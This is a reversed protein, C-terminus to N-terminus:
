PAPTVSHNYVEPQFIRMQEFDVAKGETGTGPYFNIGFYSRKRIMDYALNLKVDRPGVLMYVQNGTFMANRANDRLLSMDSRLGLTLYENIKVANTWILNQRGRYYTDFVFPTDGAAHAFFYRLSSHVRNGLYMNMTPGGRVLAAFDGTSYASAILNARFGFDVMRGPRGVRLLPATNRFEGQWQLRGAVGPKEEEPDVFFEEDYNPFFEDKYWGLSAYSDLRFKEWEKIERSDAIQVGYGPREYGLFGNQYDENISARLRTKGDFLKHDGLLVPQGVRSNYGFDLKTDPSRFHVIGGIGPGFGKDELRAGGGRRRGGGGMSVLPSFRVSSHGGVRFDWGPGLYFGGYDPDIGIDPGLYTMAGSPEDFSMESEPLGAIKWNKFYLAPSETLIQNYGNQDRYVEIEKVKFKFHKGWSEGLSAAQKPPGGAPDAETLETQDLQQQSISALSAINEEDGTSYTQTSKSKPTLTESTQGTFAAKLAGPELILRGNEYQVYKESLFSTQAKIRVQQVVAAYDNILASKRSLDIKAYSGHTKQGNKIIVVNGEAIVLDQNQDYTLKDSYLESNQESIVMHVSGTAIYVDRDKDYNLTDSNIDVMVARAKLPQQPAPAPKTSVSELDLQPSLEMETLGSPLANPKAPEAPSEKLPPAAPFIPQTKFIVSEAPDNVMQALADQGALGTLALSCALAVMWPQPATLRHMNM